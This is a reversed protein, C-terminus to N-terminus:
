FGIPIWRVTGAPSVEAVRCLSNGPRFEDVRVCRGTIAFSAFLTRRENRARAKAGEIIKAQYAKPTLIDPM